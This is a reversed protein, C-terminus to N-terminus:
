TQPCQNGSWGRYLALECFRCWPMLWIHIHLLWRRTVQGSWDRWDDDEHTAPCRHARSTTGCGLPNHSCNADFSIFATKSTTTQGCGLARRHLDSPFCLSTGLPVAICFRSRGKSRVLLPDPAQSQLLPRVLSNLQNPLSMLSSVSVHSSPQVQFHVQSLSPLQKFFEHPTVQSRDDQVPYFNCGEKCKRSRRFKARGKSITKQLSRKPM